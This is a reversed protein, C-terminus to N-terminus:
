RFLQTYLAKGVGRGRSDARIYISTNVSWQYSAPDKHGSAFVYGAIQDADDTAVLWAYKTLTKAIRVRFEEVTPPVWEFSIATESVIPAYIAAVAEADAVSAIRIKM